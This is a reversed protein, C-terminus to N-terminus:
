ETVERLSKVAENYEEVLRLYKKLYNPYKGNEGIVYGYCDTYCYYVKDALAAAKENGLANISNRKHNLPERTKKIENIEKKYEDRLAQAAEIYTIWDKNYVDNEYHEAINTIGDISKDAMDIYEDTLVRLKQVKTNYNVVSIVIAAAAIILLVAAAAIKKGISVAKLKDWMTPAKYGAIEENEKLRKPINCGCKNCIETGATLKAWCQPCRIINKDVKANCHPCIKEDDNIIRNCNSCQM